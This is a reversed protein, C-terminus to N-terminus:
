ASRTARRGVAHPSTRARSCAAPQGVAHGQSPQDRGPGRSAHRDRARVPISTTDGDHRARCTPRPTRDRGHASPACRCIGASSRRAPSAAHRSSACSLPMSPDDHAPKIASVELRQGPAETISIPTWARTVRCMSSGPPDNLAEAHRDTDAARWDGAHPLLSVTVSGSDRGATPDPHTPRACSRSTCPQAGGTATEFRRAGCGYRGTNLVSLGAGGAPDSLDMWRHACVEFMMQEEATRRTTPRDVFGGQIEYTAVCADIVTPMEM